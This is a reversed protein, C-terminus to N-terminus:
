SSACREQQGGAAATFLEVAVDALQDGQRTVVRGGRALFYINGGGLAPREDLRWGQLTLVRILLSGFETTEGLRPIEWPEPEPLELAEAEAQLANEKM